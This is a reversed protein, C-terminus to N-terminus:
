ITLRYYFSKNFCDQSENYMEDKSIAECQEDSEVKVSATQLGKYICSNVMAAEANHDMAISFRENTAVKRCARLVIEDMKKNPSDEIYGLGEHYCGMHGSCGNRIARKKLKVPTKGNEDLGLFARLEVLSMGSLDEYALATSPGAVSVLAAILVALLIRM